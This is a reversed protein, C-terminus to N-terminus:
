HYEHTATMSDLENIYSGLKNTYNIYLQAHSGGKTSNYEFKTILLTTCCAAYIQIWQVQKTSCQQVASIITYPYRVCYVERYFISQASYYWVTNYCCSHYPKINICILCDTNLFTLIVVFGRVYHLIWTFLQLNISKPSLLRTIEVFKLAVIKLNESFNSGVNECTKINQLMNSSPWSKSATGTVFDFM